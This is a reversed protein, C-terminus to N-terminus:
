KNGMQKASANILVYERTSCGFKILDHDLLEYYRHPERRVGMLFTGNTSGLDM